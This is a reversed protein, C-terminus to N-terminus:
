DPIHMPMILSRTEGIDVQLPSHEGWFRLIAMPTDDSPPASLADILYKPNVGIVFEPDRKPWLEECDPFKGEIEVIPIGAGAKTTGMELIKGTYERLMEPTPIEHMRFGDVATMKGNRIFVGNLVPRSKDKSLAKILWNLLKVIVKDNTSVFTTM